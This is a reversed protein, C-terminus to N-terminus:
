LPGVVAILVLGVIAVISGWALGGVLVMGVAWIVVGDVVWLASACCAAPIVEANLLLLAVGELLM